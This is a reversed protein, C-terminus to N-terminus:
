GVKDGRTLVGFGRTIQEAVKAWLPAYLRSKLVLISLLVLLLSIVIFRRM